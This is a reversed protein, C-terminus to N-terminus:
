KEFLILCKAGFFGGVCGMLLFFSSFTLFFVVKHQMIGLNGM